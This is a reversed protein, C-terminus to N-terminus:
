ALAALHSLVREIDGREPGASQGTTAVFQPALVTSRAPAGSGPPGTEAPPPAPPALKKVSQAAAEAEAYLSATRRANDSLKGRMVELSRAADAELPGAHERKFAELEEIANSAARSFADRTRVAGLVRKELAPEAKPSPVANGARLAAAADDLDKERAAGRGAELTAVAQSSQAHEGILHGAENQMAALKPWSLKLADLPVPTFLWNGFRDLM